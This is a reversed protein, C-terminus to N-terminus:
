PHLSLTSVVTVMIRGASCYDQEELTRFYLRNYDDGAQWFHQVSLCVSAVAPCESVRFREATGIRPTILGDMLVEEDVWVWLFSKRIQCGEEQRM